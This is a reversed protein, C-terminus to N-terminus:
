YICGFSPGAQLFMNAVHALQRLGNLAHGADRSFDLKPFALAVDQSRNKMRQRYAKASQFVAQCRTSAFRKLGFRVTESEGSPCDLSQDLLKKVERM